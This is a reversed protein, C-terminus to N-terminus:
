NDVSVALIRWGAPAVGRYRLALHAVKGTPIAVPSAQGGTLIYGSALVLNTASGTSYVEVNVVNGDVPTGSPVALTANAGTTNFRDVDDAQSPTATGNNAVTTQAPIVKTIDGTSHTHATPPRSNTLRTDDNRVPHAAASPNPIVPSSGFTKTGNVTENGTRHVVTSDDAKGTRLDKVDGAIEVALAAVHTDLPM